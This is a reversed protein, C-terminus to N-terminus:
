VLWFFATRCGPIELITGTWTSRQLHGTSTHHRRRCYNRKCNDEQEPWCQQRRGSSPITTRGHMSQQLQMVEIANADQHERLRAQLKWKTEGIYVQGCICPLCHVVNSQKGIPLTNMVRTLMLHLTPGSKFVVSIEFNRCAGWEDGCCLPDNNCTTQDGKRPERWPQQTGIGASTPIPCFSQLFVQWSLRYCHDGINCPHAFVDIIALIAIISCAHSFCWRM